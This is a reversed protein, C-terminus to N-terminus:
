YIFSFIASASSILSGLAIYKAGSLINLYVKSDTTAEDYYNDISTLM